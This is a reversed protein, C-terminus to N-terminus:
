GAAGLRRHRPVWRKARCRLRWGTAVLADVQWSAGVAGLALAAPWATRRRYGLVALLATALGLTIWSPLRPAGLVACTGGLTAAAIQWM